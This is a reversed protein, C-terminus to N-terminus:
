EGSVIADRAGSLGTLDPWAGALCLEVSITHEQFERIDDRMERHRDTLRQFMAQISELDAEAM